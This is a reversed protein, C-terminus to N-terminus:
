HIVIGIGLRLNDQAFVLTHCIPIRSDSPFNASGIAGIPEHPRGEKIGIQQALQQSHLQQQQELSSAINVPPVLDAFVKM